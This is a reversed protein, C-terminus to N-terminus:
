TMQLCHSNEKKELRSEKLKNKKESQWSWSKWFWASYCHHSHAHKDQKEGNLIIIATPKDYVAKIIILYTEEKDVNQLTKIMIPHQIKNFAKETDILIIM